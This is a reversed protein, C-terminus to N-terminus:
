GLIQFQAKQAPNPCYQEELDKEMREGHYKEPTYNALLLGAKQTAYDRRRSIDLLHAGEM